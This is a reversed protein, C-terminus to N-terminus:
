KTPKNKTKAQVTFVYENSKARLYLMPFDRKKIQIYKTNIKGTTILM